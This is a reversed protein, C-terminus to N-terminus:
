CRCFGGLGAEVSGETAGGSGGGVQGGALDEPLAASLNYENALYMLLSYVDTPFAILYKINTNTETCLAARHRLPHPLRMWLFRVLSNISSNAIMILNIQNWTFVM